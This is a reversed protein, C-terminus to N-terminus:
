TGYFELFRRTEENKPQFLVQEAEGAELLKGQHFFLVEDALCRAQRLSHTVIVLAAGSERRYQFMLEEALAASSIDMAATPEDLFVIDYQCMLTRALAMRATEGGSLRDARRNALHDIGLQQMLTEARKRESGGLLINRRTSMHFAYSKQPMYGTRCPKDFVANKQDASVTGTLIRAFTSKGSGNAGIVAYIRDKKLSLEPVQLVQRGRYTKTFPCVKM